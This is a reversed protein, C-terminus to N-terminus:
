WPPREDTLFRQNTDREREPRDPSMGRRVAVCYLLAGLGGVLIVFAALLMEPGGSYAHVYPAPRHYQGSRVYAEPASQAPEHVPMGNAPLGDVAAPTTELIPLGHRASDRVACWCRRPRPGAKQSFESVPEEGARGRHPRGAPQLRTGGPTVGARLRAGSAPRPKRDSRPPWTPARAGPSGTRHRDALGSAWSRPM